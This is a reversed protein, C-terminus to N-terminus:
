IGLSDRSIQGDRIAAAIEACLKGLLQVRLEGVEKETEAQAARREIKAMDAATIPLYGTAIQSLSCPISMYGVVTDNEEPKEDLVYTLERESM